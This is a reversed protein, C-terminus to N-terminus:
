AGLGCGSSFGRRPVLSNGEPVPSSVKEAVAYVVAQLHAAPILPIVAADVVRLNATGYVRLEPDVVGGLELPLMSATGCPHFETRLREKVARRLITDANEGRNGRGGGGGEGMDRREKLVWDLGREEAAAAVWPWAPEPGLASMSRTGVLRGNFRLAAILVEADLPDACYRPDIAM